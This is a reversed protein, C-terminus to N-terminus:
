PQFLGDYLAARVCTICAGASDHKHLKLLLYADTRVLDNGLHRGHQCLVSAQNLPLSGPAVVHSKIVDRGRRACRRIRRVIEDAETGRDLDPRGRVLHIWRVSILLDM